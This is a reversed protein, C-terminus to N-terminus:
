ADVFGVSYLHKTTNSTQPQWSAGGDATALITGNEGVAWGRQADVFGVSLLHETTNSTQPQWSAGGDATALITGDDGVAWGHQADVPPCPEGPFCEPDPQLAWFRQANFFAVSNLGETTHSTQPQWSVGGDTTALITGNDGVAWVHRGDPLAFVDYMDTTVRDLRRM